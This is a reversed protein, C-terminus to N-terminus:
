LGFLRTFFNSKKEEPEPLGDGIPVVDTPDKKNVAIPNGLFDKTITYNVGANESSNGKIKALELAQEFDRLDDALDNDRDEERRLQEIVSKNYSDLLDTFQSEQKTYFDLNSQLDGVENGLITDIESLISNYDNAKQNRQGILNNIESNLLDTARSVEGTLTSASAGPNNRIKNISADRENKKQTILDDLRSIENRSGDLDREKTLEEYRRSRFGELDKFAKERASKSENLQSQLSNFDFGGTDSTSPSDSLETKITDVRTTSKDNTPAKVSIKEGPFILDKNGSRFGTLNNVSTGLRKAISGLTDGKKVTYSTAM